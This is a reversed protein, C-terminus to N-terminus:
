VAFVHIDCGADASLLDPDDGQLGHCAKCTEGRLDIKPRHGSLTSFNGSYTGSAAATRAM